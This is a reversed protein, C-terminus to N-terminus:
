PEDEADSKCADGIYTMLDDDSRAKQLVLREAKRLERRATSESISLAEAVETVPLGQVHHLVFSLRPRTSMQTLVRDLARVAAVGDSDHARAPVEPLEGSSSLTVWRRVRQRRLEMAAKRAAIGLLFARLADRNTMTSAAGLFAVFTEQLLDEVLAEDRGVVTRLLGRVKAAHRDWVVGIAREDGDCAANVLDADSLRERPFAQV